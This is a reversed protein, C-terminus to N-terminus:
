SKRDRPTSSPDSASAIDAKWAAETQELNGMAERYRAEGNESDVLLAQVREISANLEVLEQRAKNFDTIEFDTPSLSMGAAQDRAKRENLRRETADLGDPYRKLIERARKQSDALRAQVRRSAEHWPKSKEVAKHCDELLKTFKVAIHRKAESLAQLHLRAKPNDTKASDFGIEM